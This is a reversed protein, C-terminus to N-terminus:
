NDVQTGGWEVVTFGTRAPATLTQPEIDVPAELPQWAMFVRLLTDPQPEITLVATDTYAESQFSILNYANEEM